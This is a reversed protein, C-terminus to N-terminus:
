LNFENSNIFESVINEDEMLFFEGDLGTLRFSNSFPHSSAITFLPRVDLGVCSNFKNDKNFTFSLKHLCDVTPSLLRKDM